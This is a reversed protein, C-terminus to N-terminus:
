EQLKVMLGEGPGLVMPLKTLNDKVVSPISFGGPISLDAANSYEGRIVIETELANNYDWNLLSIYLPGNSQKQRVILEVNGKTVWAKRKTASKLTTYFAKVCPSLDKDPALKLPRARDDQSKDEQTESSKGKIDADIEIGVHAEASVSGARKFARGDLTMLVTGKGHKKLLYSDDSLKEGKCRGQWQWSLKYEDPTPYAFQLDTFVKAAGAHINFGYKDYLGFPGAAILTGGNGVWELLKEGFGNDFYQAYPLIIVDYNDLSDRGNIVFKEPVVGFHYQKSILRDFIDKTIKSCSNTPYANIISVGPHLVGIRPKIIPANILIDNISTLRHKVVSFLGAWPRALPSTGAQFGDPIEVMKQIWYFLLMRRDWSYEHWIDRRGANYVAEPTAGKALKFTPWFDEGIVEQAWGYYEMAVLTKNFYRNLGYMYPSNDWGYGGSPHKGWMDVCREAMQLDDLSNVLIEDMIGGSTSSALPHKPAGRKIAQYCDALYDSYSDKRFREFEYTLPTTSAGPLRKNPLFLTYVDQDRDDKTVVFARILKKPPQIDDFSEYSSRWAANLKDITGLKDKLYIRFAKVSSESFGHEQFAVTRKGPLNVTTGTYPHAEWPGKFIFTYPKQGNIRAAEELYKVILSRPVPHNYDFRRSGVSGPTNQFYYEPNDPYADAFWEPRYMSDGVAYLLVTDSLPMKYKNWQRLTNASETVEFNDEATWKVSAGTETLTDFGLSMMTETRGWTGGFVLRKLEGNPAVELPPLVAPTYKQFKVFRKKFRRDNRLRDLEKSIRKRTQAILEGTESLLRSIEEMTETKRPDASFAPLVSVPDKKGGPSDDFMGHFSDSVNKLTETANTVAKGCQDAIRASKGTKTVGNVYLIARNFGEIEDKLRGLDVTTENYIDAIGAYLTGTAQVVDRRSTKILDTIKDLEEQLRALNLNFKEAEKNSFTELRMLWNKKKGGAKVSATRLKKTISKLQRSTEKVLDAGKKQTGFAQSIDTKERAFQMAKSLSSLDGALNDLSNVAQEYATAVGMVSGPTPYQESSPKFSIMHEVQDTIRLEDIRGNLFIGWGYDWIGSHIKGGTGKLAKADIKHIINNGDLYVNYESKGEGDTCDWNIELHHWKGIEPKFAGSTISSPSYVDLMISNGQTYVEFGSIRKKSGPQTPPNYWGFLPHYMAPAPTQKDNDFCFWFDATGKLTNINGMADYVCRGRDTERLDLGSGWKGGQGSTTRAVSFGPVTEAITSGAAYDANADPSNYHALLLVKASSIGACFLSLFIATLVVQLLRCKTRPFINM